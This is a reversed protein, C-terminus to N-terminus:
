LENKPKIIKINPNTNVLTELFSFEQKPSIYIDDYKNYQIILGKDSLAPKFTVPIILGKHHSVKNINSISITKRFPGSKCHLKEKVIKYKTDLMSWLLIGITSLNIFLVIYKSILDKTSLITFCTGVLIAFAFGFVIKHIKSFNSKFTTM